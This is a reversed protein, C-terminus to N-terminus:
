QGSCFNWNSLFHYQLTLVARGEIKVHTDRWYKNDVIGNVYRDAINMGGIFGTVGDIIAVKRHDRYNIRNALFVFHIRYFPFIEVGNERFDDVFSNWLGHSGFDDFIIRVKVGERAKQILLDKVTHGTKDEDFIYYELHVFKTANAIADLLSPFKEEGNLLVTVNNESLPSLSEGLLLDILDDNKQSLEPYKERVQQSDKQITDRVQTFLNANRILKKSYIRRKRYNVGVLFYLAPGGIPFLVILLLYAATKTPSRTELVVRISAIVGLAIVALWIVLGQDKLFIWM